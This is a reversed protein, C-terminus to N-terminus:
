FKKGAGFDAARAETRNRFQMDAKSVTNLVLVTYGTILFLTMNRDLVFVPVYYANDGM